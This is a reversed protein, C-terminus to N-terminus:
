SRMARCPAADAVHEDDARAVPGVDGEGQLLPAVLTSATSISGRM